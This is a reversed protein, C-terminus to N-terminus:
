LAEIDEISLGTNKSIEEPNMGSEILMKVLKLNQEQKQELQADKQELQADKQELQADKQELQAEKQELLVTKEALERTKIMIDTDRSEIISFYEDEVNMDMRMDVDSAAILLRRLIRQMEIDDEAYVSDDLDLIHQNESNKHSQDFISLVEDLRNNIKGHLRPIQVIISDHTLSDVFANPIGKTVLNENYDYAHHRVYIVPEEIDGVCHGLLYILIDSQQLPFLSIIEHPHRTKLFSISCSKKNHDDLRATFCLRCVSLADRLSRQITDPQLEVRIIDMKLLASLITRAIREDEMLFKFVTDYIPNAVVMIKGKKKTENEM